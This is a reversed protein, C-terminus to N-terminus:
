SKSATSFTGNTLRALKLHDDPFLQVLYRTLPRFLWYRTRYLTPYVTTQYFRKSFNM